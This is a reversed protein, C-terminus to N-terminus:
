FLKKKGTFFDKVNDMISGTEVEEKPPLLQVDEALYWDDPKEKDRIKFGYELVKAYKLQRINQRVSANIKNLDKYFAQGINKILTEGYLNKGWKTGQAKALANASWGGKMVTYPIWRPFQLNSMVSTSPFPFPGYLRHVSSCSLSKMRQIWQCIPFRCHGDCALIRSPQPSLSLVPPRMQQQRRAMAGQIDRRMMRKGKKKYAEVVQGHMLCSGMKSLHIGSLHESWFAVSHALLM